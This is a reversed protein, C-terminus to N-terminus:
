DQCTPRVTTDEHDVPIVLFGETGDCRHSRGIIAGVPPNELDAKPFRRRDVLVKLLQATTRENLHLGNGVFPVGSMLASNKLALRHLRDRYSRRRPRRHCSGAVAAEYGEAWDATSFDSRDVHDRVPQRIGQPCLSHGSRSEVPSRVAAPLASEEQQAARVPDEPREDRDATRAGAAVQDSPSRPPTLWASAM